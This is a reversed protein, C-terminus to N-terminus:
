INLKIVNLYMGLEVNTWGLIEVFMFTFLINIPLEIIKM